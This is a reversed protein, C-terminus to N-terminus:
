RRRRLWASTKWPWACWAARSICRTKAPPSCARWGTSRRTPISNRVSKHLASILNYHEEGSKDYMLVRQQV